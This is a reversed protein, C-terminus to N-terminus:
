WQAINVEAEDASILQLYEERHVDFDAWSKPEDGFTLVQDASTKRLITCGYDEAVTVKPVGEIASAMKYVDGCWERQAGRPVCTTAESPPNTDHIVIVGGVNLAAWSNVTDRKAQDTHHLGDIFILDITLSKFAKFFEDSTMRISAGAKPDPDLSLKSEVQIHNYNHDPNYVGIELYTKASIKEAIRNLLKTHYHIM